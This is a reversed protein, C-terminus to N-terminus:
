RRGRRRPEPLPSVVPHPRLFRAVAAETGKERKRGFTPKKERLLGFHGQEGTSKHLQRLYTIDHEDFDTVPLELPEEGTGFHMLMREPKEKGKVGIVPTAIDHGEGIIQLARGRTLRENWSPVRYVNPQGPAPTRGPLVDKAYRKGYESAILLPIGRMEKPYSPGRLEQYKGGPGGFIHEGAPMDEIHLESTGDIRISPIAGQRLMNEAHTHVEDAILALGAAPDRHLTNTRAIQHPLNLRGTNHLCAAACGATKDRCTDACGSKGAPMLYMGRQQVVLGPYPKAFKTSVSLMSSKGSTIGAKKAEENLLARASPLHVNKIDKVSVQRLADELFERAM